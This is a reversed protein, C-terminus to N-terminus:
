ADVSLALTRSTESMSRGSERSWENFAAQVANMSKKSFVTRDIVNERALAAIVSKSLIFGDKGMFRLAMQATTGGLRGGRTKLMELLGIFDSAPWRAILAGASGAEEALQRLLIANDRVAMIKQGNRIIRTDSLLVDIDDDSLMACRNLDFHGFAEEIGPWKADVVKWNFGAQFVCKSFMSLWRDDAIAALEAESKPQQEALKAELAKKGGHREAALAFIEEFTQM